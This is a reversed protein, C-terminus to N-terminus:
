GVQGSGIYGAFLDPRQQVMGVGVVSGWWHGPVWVKKRGVHMALYQALEVGDAVIRDLYLDSTQEKARGFTNGAGRQDWQVLTFDGEYIRYESQFPSQVDAPGGHVLLRVPNSRRDGNITIYQDIGGVRVYLSEHIGKEAASSQSVTVGMSGAVVAVVWVAYTLQRGM